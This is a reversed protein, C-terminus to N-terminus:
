DIMEYSVSISIGGSVTGPEIPVTADAVEAMMARPAAIPVPGNGVLSESLLLLKVKSYGAMQAYSLARQYAREFARKRAEEKAEADNEASFTPGNLNTAGADVLADLVEGVRVLDRFKVTVRNSAQYGRFVQRKLDRDYDYQAYLNISATQIDKADVGLSKLREIVRQMQTSNERMAEVASPAMNTVGASITVLDPEVEFQEFVSLEITRQPQQHAGAHEHALAVSAPSLALAMVPLIARTIM